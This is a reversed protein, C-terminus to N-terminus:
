VIQPKRSAIALRRLNTEWSGPKYTGVHWSTEVQGEIITKSYFVTVGHEMVETHHMQNGNSTDTWCSIRLPKSIVRLGPSTNPDTFSTGQETTVKEAFKAVRRGRRNIERESIAAHRREM